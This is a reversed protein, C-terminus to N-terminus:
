RASGCNGRACHGRVSTGQWDKCPPQLRPPLICQQTHALRCPLLASRLRSSLALACTFRYMPGQASLTAALADKRRGSKIMKIKKHTSAVAKGRFFSVNGLMEVQFLVLHVPRRTVVDRGRLFRCNNGPCCAASARTRLLTSPQNGRPGFISGDSVLRDVRHAFCRLLFRSKTLGHATRCPQTRFKM